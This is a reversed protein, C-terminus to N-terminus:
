CWLHFQVLQERQLLDPQDFLREDPIGQEPELLEDAALVGLAGQEELVGLLFKEEFMYEVNSESGIVYSHRAFHTVKAFDHLFVHLLFCCFVLCSEVGPHDLKLYQLVQDLLQLSHPKALLGRVHARQRVQDHDRVVATRRGQGLLLATQFGRELPLATTAQLDGEGVGEDRVKAKEEISMVLGM